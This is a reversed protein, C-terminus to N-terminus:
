TGGTVSRDVSPSETSARAARALHVATPAPAPLPHSGEPRLGDFILSLYRRWLDHPAVERLPAVAQYAAGLLLVIDHGVIDARVAGHRRARETLAEAVESLRDSAARVEPDARIDGTIAQCFSRDQIQQEVGTTMFELLAVGPDAADLLTRGAAALKDLQDCTIAAILHQKTPFHRFVTGKGIGARAAIQAISVDVGYEAFAAAAADLLLRRNRLADARM